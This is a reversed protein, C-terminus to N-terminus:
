KGQSNSQCKRKGEFTLYVLYPGDAQFSIEDGQAENLTGQWLADYAFSDWVLGKSKLQKCGFNFISVQQRAFTKFTSNGQTPIFYGHDTIMVPQLHFESYYRMMLSINALTHDERKGTAGLYAIRSGEQIHPLTAVHRTAKTLDNDDQEAMHLFNLRTKLEASLSDGDGVVTMQGPRIGHDILSLAAGDCAILHRAHRIITQGVENEPYSGNAVIVMDFHTENNILPYNNM